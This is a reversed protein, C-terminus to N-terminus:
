GVIGEILEGVNSGVAKLAKPFLSEDTLGPLTNVELCYIGRKPHIIFDSRSYHRLGFVEHVKKSIDEIAKKISHDFRAPVIEDSQGDTYKASFNFFKHNKPVIEIVPLSYISQGRFNDIVGCTAESGRIYEEIMINSDYKFAEKLGEFIEDFTHVISVGVSFSGNVPKIVGPVPFTSFIERAIDRINDDNVIIYSKFYPTKIGNDKMVKKALLKNMALSSSLSGSGSFPIDLSELLKQVKGDEGYNGHLGNIVFDIKHVIDHPNIPAGDIHWNGDRDIFIDYAEYKHDKERVINLINAGTKLSVDYEHSPGGRLVGVRKIDRM